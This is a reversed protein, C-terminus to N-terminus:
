FKTKNIYSALSVNCVKGKAWHASALQELLNEVAGEQRLSFYIAIDSLPLLNNLFVCLLCILHKFYYVYVCTLSLTTCFDRFDCWCCFSPRWVTNLRRWRGVCAVLWCVRLRESLSLSPLMPSHTINHTRLIQKMTYWQIFVCYLVCRSM